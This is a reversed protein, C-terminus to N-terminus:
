VLVPGVAGMNLLSDVKAACIFDNRTIGGADHTTFQVLVRGYGVEMDPHHGEKNAVWAIANVFSMVHYFNKFRFERRLIHGDQLRWDPISKLLQEADSASLKTATSSSSEQALNTM